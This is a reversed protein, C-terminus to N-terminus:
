RATERAYTKKRREWEARHQWCLGSSGTMAVQRSCKGIPPNGGPGRDVYAMCTTSVTVKM